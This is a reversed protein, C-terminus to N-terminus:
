DVVRLFGFRMLKSLFRSSADLAQQPDVRKRRAMATIVEHAPRTGIFDSLLDIANPDLGLDFPFGHTQRLVGRTIDWGGGQGQRVRQELEVNADLKLTLALIDDMSAAEHFRAENLMMALLQDSADGQLTHYDLEEARFFNEGQTARKRLILCGMSVFNANLKALEALWANVDSAGGQQHAFDAEGVWKDAYTRADESYLKILLCDCGNRDLWVHPRVPWDDETKHHWNLTICAFGDDALFTPVGALLERVLSDGEHTGGLCVLDHKPAIVFPPNSVILDFQGELGKVPEFLSGLRTHIGPQDPTDSLAIGNLLASMRTVDLSRQTVDTAVVRSAHEMACLSQFGQGCGIDLVREGQRRITMAALLSTALGVGLVHDSALPKGTDFPEWDRLTLHKGFPIIAHNSRIRSADAADRTLLNATILDDLALPAIADRLADTPVSQALFFLRVLTSTPSADATQELANARDLKKGTRDFAGLARLTDRTYLRQPLIHGLHTLPHMTRTRKSARPPATPTPQKITLPIRG